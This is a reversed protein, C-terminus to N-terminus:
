AKMRVSAATEVLSIIEWGDDRTKKDIWEIFNKSSVSEIGPENLQSVGASSHVLVSPRGGCSCSTDTGNTFIVYRWEERKKCALSPATEWCVLLVPNEIPTQQFFKSLCQNPQVPLGLNYVNRRRTDPREWEALPAMRMDAVTSNSNQTEEIITTWAAKISSKSLRVQTFSGDSNHTVYAISLDERHLEKQTSTRKTTRPADATQLPEWRVILAPNEIPNRKLCQLLCENPQVPMGEAFLKRRPTSGAHWAEFPVLRMSCIMNSDKKTEAIVTSWVAKISTKHIKLTEYSGDVNRRVYAISIDDAQLEQTAYTVKRAEPEQMRKYQSILDQLDM